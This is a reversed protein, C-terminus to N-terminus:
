DTYVHSYTDPEINYKKQYIHEATFTNDPKVEIFTGGLQEPSFRDYTGTKLGFTWRIGEYMVSISNLHSHGTFVGDVCHKKFLDLLGPVRHLGKFIEGRRGFDGNRSPVDTGITYTINEEPTKQYDASVAAMAFEETPIHYCVFSKVGNGIRGATEDFWELQDEAFGVARKVKPDKTNGCGNSDMMYIVRKIANGQKLGITYNSNGTVNGRKFLSHGAKELIECQWDVGMLSENDHNGFIPAWPIRFRDMFRVYKRFSTGSDDFEGYVLDGTIIILDPNTAHVLDRIYNFCNTEITNTAWKIKEFSGLRDEYRAQAADIIQTDTIQLIRFSRDKEVELVFDVM